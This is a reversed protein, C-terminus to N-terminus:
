RRDKIAYFEDETAGSYTEVARDITNGRAMGTCGSMVGNHDTGGSCYLDYQVAAHYALKVEDYTLLPHSVEIGDLGLDVLEGVFKSAGGMPHALIALGGAEHIVSIVEKATPAILAKNEEAAVRKAEPSLFAAHRIPESEAFPVLGMRDLALAVQDNCYWTTEPNMRIVDDWTMGKIIGNEVTYDFQKKTHRNRIVTLEGCYDIIAKNTYDFDLGVIHFNARTDLGAYFEVGPIADLGIRKAASLLEPIGTLVDHDTVALARYGLSKALAALHTPRYAGDSNTSHLHLNAYKM